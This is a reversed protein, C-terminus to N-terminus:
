ELMEPALYDLTGCFTTRKGHDLFHSWGFDAIKMKGEKDLLINEPKIDRHMIKNFHLAKLGEGIQCIYQSALEESFKRDFSSKLKQYLQGGEAFELVLYLSIEDEFHNYLKIIHNNNISYMIKVETRAHEVLKISDLTNKKM